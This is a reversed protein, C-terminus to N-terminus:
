ACHYLSPIYIELPPRARLLCVGNTINISVMPNDHDLTDICSYVGLDSHGIDAANLRSANNSADYSFDFRRAM